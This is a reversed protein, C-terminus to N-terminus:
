IVERIKEVAKEQEGKILFSRADLLAKHMESNREMLESIKNASLIGALMVGGSVSIIATALLRLMEVGGGLM